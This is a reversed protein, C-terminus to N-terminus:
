PLAGELFSKTAGPGRDRLGVERMVTDLRLNVGAPLPRDFRGRERLRLVDGDM